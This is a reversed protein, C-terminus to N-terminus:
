INLSALERFAKYVCFGSFLVHKLHVISVIFKKEVGRDSVPLRLAVLEETIEEAERMM